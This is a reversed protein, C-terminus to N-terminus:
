KEIEKFRLENGKGAFLVNELRRVIDHNATMMEDYTVWRANAVARLPAILLEVVEHFACKRVEDKQPECDWESSLNITSTKNCYDSYCSARTSEDPKHEIFVEWDYL